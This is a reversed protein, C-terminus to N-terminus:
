LLSELKRRPPKREKEEPEKTKERLRGGLRGKTRGWDQEPRRRTEELGKRTRQLIWTERPPGRKEEVNRDGETM